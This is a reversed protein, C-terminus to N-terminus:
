WDHIPSDLDISFAGQSISSNSYQFWSSGAPSFNLFSLTQFPSRMSGPLSEPFLPSNSPSDAAFM